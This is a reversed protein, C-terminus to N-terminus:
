PSISEGLTNFAAVTYTSNARASRDVFELVVNAPDPADGFNHKQGNLTAILSKDRYIRFSPLGTELDPMFNWTIVTGTEPHKRSRVAVPASPKRTPAIRGTNLAQWKRALEENPLWAATLPNEPYKSIAAVTQTSTNGLWGQTSPMPQLGDSALRASIIADLYPIALWRNNGAEHTTNPEISLAWNAGAARFKTFVQKPTTICEEVYPDKAGIAWLVPTKSVAAISQPDLKLM